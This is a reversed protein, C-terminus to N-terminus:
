IKQIMSLFKTTSLTTRLFDEFVREKRNSKVVDSLLDIIVEFVEYWSFDYMYEMDMLMFMSRWVM